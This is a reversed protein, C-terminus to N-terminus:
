VSTVGTATAHTTHERAGDGVSEDPELRPPDLDLGVDVTAQGAERDDPEGVPGARLRLVANAAADAGRLELPRQLPDRDVKRRGPQALFAGAEVERDRQRHQRRRPLNRGLPEGLMRGDALEGEVPADPRHAAREGDGLARAAGAELPDEARGLRGALRLEAADLRNGHPM